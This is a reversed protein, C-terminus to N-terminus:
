TNNPHGFGNNAAEQIIDIILQEHKYFINDCEEFLEDNVDDSIDNQASFAAYGRSLNEYLPQPLISLVAEVEAALEGCNAINFFYQSHGGNNVESEYTLLNKLPPLLDGIEWLEWIRNWREEATLPKEKKKKFIDFFGM